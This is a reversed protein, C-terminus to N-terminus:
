IARACPSCRSSGCRARGTAWFRTSPRTSSACSRGSRRRRLGHCSSRVSTPAGEYFDPTWMHPFRLPRSGFGVILMAMGALFMPNAAFNGGTVVDRVAKLDIHGTAAFVLAVGYLFFATAFSGLLFYKLSSEVARAEGKLLGCLVYLSLSMVELGIFITIFSNSSVMVMMGLAGFLLLSYYEGSVIEERRTYGLSIVGVLFLVCLFIQKFFSGFNDSVYLGSFIDRPAGWLRTAFYFALAAGILTLVGGARAPTGHKRFAEVLLVLLGFVALTIEPLIWQFDSVSLAINM